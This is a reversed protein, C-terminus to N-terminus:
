RVRYRVQHLTKRKKFLISNFFAGTAALLLRRNM